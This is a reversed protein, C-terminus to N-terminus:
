GLTTKTRKTQAHSSNERKTLHKEKEKWLNGEDAM